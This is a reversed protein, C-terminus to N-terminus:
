KKKVTVAVTSTKDGAKAEITAKGPAVAKVGGTADVTVITSDSSTYTVPVGIVPKDGAMPTATIKADGEPKLDLTASDVKLETFDPLKVTVKFDQKINNFTATIKTEGPAGATVMKQEPKDPTAVLSAIAPNEIKADINKAFQPMPQGAEDVVGPVFPVSQGVGVLTLDEAVIKAPIHIEVSATGKQEGAAATITATGTHRATVMGNADVSAVDAKDSTWTVPLPKKMPQNDNGTQTAKLQVTKGAAEFRTTKPDVSISGLKQCGAAMVVLTALGLGRVLAQYNM